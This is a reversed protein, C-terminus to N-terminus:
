VERLGPTYSKGDYTLQERRPQRGPPAISVHTWVSSGVKEYIVQDFPLSSSAIWRCVELPTKGAVRIDAAEGYLHQSGRKAATPQVGGVAANVAASRYGSNISVAAGLADRLPQLITQCLRQLSALHEPTPANSIGKAVATASHTLEALTFNPSLKM